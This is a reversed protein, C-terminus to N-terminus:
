LEGLIARGLDWTTPSFDTGRPNRNQQGGMGRLWNHALTLEKQSVLFEAQWTNARKYM